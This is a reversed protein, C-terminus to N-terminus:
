SDSKWKWSYLCIESLGPWFDKLCQRWFLCKPFLLSVWSWLQTFIVGEGSVINDNNTHCAQYRLCRRCVSSPEWCQKPPPSPPFYLIKNFFSFTDWSKQGTNEIVNGHIILSTVVCTLKYERASHCIWNRMSAGFSLSYDDKEPNKYAIKSKKGEKMKSVDTLFTAFNKHINAFCRLIHM